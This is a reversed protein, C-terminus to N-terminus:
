RATGIKTAIPRVLAQPASDLTSYGCAAADIAINNRVSVGRQCNWGDGGEWLLSTSIVGDKESIQGVTTFLQGTDSGSMEHLNITRKACKHFVDLARHYFKVAAAADPFAVVAETVSYKHAAMDATDALEQQRMSVWGSGEYFSQIAAFAVGVCDNDVVLDTSFAHSEAPKILSVLPPASVAAAVEAPSLLLGDLGSMPFPPISPIAQATTNATVKRDASDGMSRLTAIGLVVAIVVFVGLGSVLWWRGKRVPKSASVWGSYGPPAGSYGRPADAIMGPQGLYPGNAFGAADHPVLPPGPPFSLRPYFRPSENLGRPPGYDNAVHPSMPQRAPPPVPQHAREDKLDRPRGGVMAGEDVFFGM